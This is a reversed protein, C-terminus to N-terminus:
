GGGVHSIAEDAVCGVLATGAATWPTYDTGDFVGHLLAVIAGIGCHLALGAQGQLVAGVVAAPDAPWNTNYGNIAQQQLYQLQGRVMACPDTKAQWGISTILGLCASSAVRPDPSQCLTFVGGCAAQAAGTYNSCSSPLTQPLCTYTGQAANFALSACDDLGSPDRRNLPNDGGYVYASRTAAVLPDRSLFQGTSPDYYRARLYYLGSEVDKYQGAFQFPNVVTPLTGLSNGYADYSYTAVLLGNSDTLARTSGLQDHLYYLVTGNPQVQELPLGSPDTVYNTFEDQILLPLGEAVDWRENSLTAGFVAKAMRLGDGNYRYDVQVTSGGVQAGLQEGVYQYQANAQNMAPGIYSTLENAQNYGYTSLGGQSGKRTVRNGVGDYGFATSGTANSTSLLENAADYGLTTTLSGGTTSSTLNDAADYTYASNPVAALGGPPPISSSLLHNSPDYGYAQAVAPFTGLPNASTVQGLGDRTYPLTLLPAGQASTSASLTLRDANDYTMATAVGNPLAESTLNGDGDYGFKTTNGLWDTISTIEGAGNYVRTATGSSAFGQGGVSATAVGTPYSINALRGALTYGYGVVDGTGNVSQTLRGLSDYQYTSTGTGDQMWLRRGDQDYNFKVMPTTNDSYLIQDVQHALLDYSMSTVRGTPDTVGTMYGDGDYGYTTTRNLPDTSTAVRRLPDYTYSTVHGLGDTQSAMQGDADYSTKQVSGDARDVETQQDALDFVYKTVHSNADTVKVLNHDGDYVNTSRNGLPDTITLVDGAGDYVTIWTHQSPNGGTVNGLPATQSTRWGIANYGFTTVNGVPDTSQVLEGVLDYGYSSAKGDPDTVATVDSPHAPDGYTFSTKEVQGDETHVQSVSLPHGVADRIITTVHGMPDTVTTLDNLASYTYTTTHSGNSSTLLNGAQDYTATSKVGDPDTVAIRHGATDYGYTWTAQQPTGSGKTLSTLLDNQYKEVTVNGKPDTITTTGVAFALTTIRGLPDRQWVVRNANDFMNTTVGGDPRTMTTLRHQADYGYMTLSGSADAVSTLNGASDYGYHVVRGAPDSASSVLGNGGYALTISRGAPDTLASVRGATYTLSTTYGDRDSESLLAGASSFVDITQDPLTYTYTGNANTTLKAIVWPGVPTWGGSGTAQFRITSGDETHVIAEQPTTGILALSLAYSDTWGFGFRHPSAAAAADFSNYTRNVDLPRGRGAVQLDTVSELLNGTDCNVPDVAKCPLAAASGPDKTLGGQLDTGNRGPAPGVAITLQQTASFGNADTVVVTFTSSIADTTLNGSIIGSPNLTLGDPLSSGSQLSWTLPASGGSAALTQAYGSEGQIGSALSTTLISPPPNTALTYTRTGTAGTSDTAVVTFTSSSPTSGVTGSLVGSSSLTFGSPLSSGAQLSWTVAGTGGLATLTQSYAGQGATAGPLATPAIFIWPSVSSTGLTLALQGGCCETYDLEMPYTGAAPFYVSVSNTSTANPQNVAGVVPFSRLPTASPPNALAGSIYGPQATGGNVPGFGLIWGDDSFFSFTVAGASGVTVPGVFTAEFNALNGVGAQQGNGQARVTSCTGDSNPVVDTLPRTNENVATSNSCFTQVATTPNFDVVSFPQTFAQSSLESNVFAGSNPNPYFTGSVAGVTVSSDALVARPALPSLPSLLGLAVSIILLVPRSWRSRRCLIDRSRHM